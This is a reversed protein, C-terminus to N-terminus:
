GVLTVDVGEWTLHRVRLEEPAPRWAPPRERARNAARALAEPSEFAEGPPAGSLVAALRSDTGVPTVPGYAFSARATTGDRLGIRGPGLRVREASLAVSVTADYPSAAVRDISRAIREADPAPATPLAVAVGLLGVSAAALGVWAYWADIPPGLM